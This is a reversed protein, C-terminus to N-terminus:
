INDKNVNLLNKTTSEWDKEKKKETNTSANLHHAEDAILVLKMDDFDAYTISNEKITTELDGHLKHITTFLINIDDKKAEDFTDDIVNINVKKNDINISDKFLYKSSYKNILNEKTKTIINNTNVFFIFNRYGQSYLYLISSAIINTKGSGTAMHFLLHKNPIDKHKKSINYFIFNELAEKQYPRLPQKINDVIASPIEPKDIHELVSKIEEYLVVSM